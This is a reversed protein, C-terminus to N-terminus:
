VVREILRECGGWVRRDVGVLRSHNHHLHPYNDNQSVGALSKKTVSRLRLSLWDCLRVAFPAVVLQIKGYNRLSWWERKAETDV